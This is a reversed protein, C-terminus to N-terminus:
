KLVGGTRLQEHILRELPLDTPALFYPIRHDSLFGHLAELYATLRREYQALAGSGVTLDIHRTTEVDAIRASGEIRPHLEGPDLVQVVVLEDGRYLLRSIGEEYGGECLLDSVLFVLGSERSRAIFETLVRDLSTRGDPSVAHLARLIHAMQRMGHRPAIAPLLSDTFPYLGVRDLGRLGLYAIAAAFRAAYRAKPVEGLRMSASLDLLIYIPLDVEHVFTKVLVRDLRGYINWDVYRFDDGPTYDRYDAFELSVGARPSPHTGSLRGKRRGKVIFKLNSLRRLFAEDILPEM